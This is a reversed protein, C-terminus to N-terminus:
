FDLNGVDELGECIRQEPQVLGLDCDRHGVSRDRLHGVIVLCYLLSASADTCSVVSPRVSAPIMGFYAMFVSSARHKVRTFSRLGALTTLLREHDRALRRFRAPNRIRALPAGHSVRGPAPPIRGVGGLGASTWWRGGGATVCQEEDQVSPGWKRCREGVIRDVASFGADVSPWCSAIAVARPSQSAPCSSQGVHPSEPRKPGLSILPSTWIRTPRSKLRFGANWALRLLTAALRLLSRM